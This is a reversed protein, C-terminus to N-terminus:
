CDAENKHSFVEVTQWCYGNNHVSVLQQGNDFIMPNDLSEFQEHCGNCESM